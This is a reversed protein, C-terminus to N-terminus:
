PPLPKIPHPHSPLLSLSLCSFRCIFSNILNVLLKKKKKQHSQLLSILLRKSRPLFAIVFWLLCILFFLCWKALLPGIYDFSHNKWYDHVSTLTSVYLLSFASSSINEFQPVPYSDQSDRPCCPFRGQIHMSPSISFSFNWYKPWRIHLTLKNSFVRISPFNSPLFLLPQYFIFHNSPMVSKISMLKLLRLSISFSLSAQCAATWPTAFFRVCSLLQIFCDTFLILLCSFYVILFHSKFFSVIIVRM